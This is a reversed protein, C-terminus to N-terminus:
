SSQSFAEKAERLLTSLREGKVKGAFEDVLTRLRKEHGELRELEPVIAAKLALFETQTSKVMENTKSLVKEVREHLPYMHGPDGPAFNVLREVCEFDIQQQKFSKLTEIEAALNKNEEDLGDCASKSEELKERCENVETEASEIAENAKDVIRALIGGFEDRLDEVSVRDLTIKKDNDDGM